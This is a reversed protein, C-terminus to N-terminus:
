LRRHSLGLEKLRAAADPRPRLDDGKEDERVALDSLDVAFPQDYGESYM